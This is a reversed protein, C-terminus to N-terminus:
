IYIGSNIGSNSGANSEASKLAANILRTVNLSEKFGPYFPESNKVAQFFKQLSQAVTFRLMSRSRLLARFGLTVFDAFPGPRNNIHLCCNPNNIYLSGDEGKVSLSERNRQAYSVNIKSSSGFRFQLEIQWLEESIKCANLNDPYDGHLLLSLDLAQSGLDHLVGGESPLM